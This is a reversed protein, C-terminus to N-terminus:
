DTKTLKTCSLCQRATQWVVLVGAAAAAAAAATVCYGLGVASQLLLCVHWYM